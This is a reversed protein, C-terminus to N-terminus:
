NLERGDALALDRTPNGGTMDLVRRDPDHGVPRLPITDKSACHAGVLGRLSARSM